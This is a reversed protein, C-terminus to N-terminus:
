TDTPPNVLGHMRKSLVQWKSPGAVFPTPAQQPQQELRITMVITHPIITESKAGLSCSLRCLVILCCVVALCVVALHCMVCCVVKQYFAVTRIKIPCLKRPHLQLLEWLGVDAVGAWLHETFSARCIRKGLSLIGVDTRILCCRPWANSLLPYIYAIM